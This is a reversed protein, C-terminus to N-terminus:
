PLGPHPPPPRPVRPPPLNAPPRRAPRRRARPAAARLPRPGQTGPAQRPERDRPLPAWPRARRRPHRGARASPAGRRSRARASHLGRSEPFTEATLPLEQGQEPAGGGSLRELPELALELPELGLG